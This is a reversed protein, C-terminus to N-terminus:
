GCTARTIRNASDIHVTLRESNFEMTMMMGPRAWRITRARSVRLMEAGTASTAERGKFQELGDDVCAAAGTDGRVPIDDDPPVILHAPAGPLSSDRKPAATPTCACMAAALGLLALNRIM